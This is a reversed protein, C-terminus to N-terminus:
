LAESVAETVQATNSKGGLDPTMIGDRCVREIATMLRKAADPEGVHELM